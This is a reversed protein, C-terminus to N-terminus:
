VRNVKVTQNPYTKLQITLVFDIECGVKGGMEVLAESRLVLM